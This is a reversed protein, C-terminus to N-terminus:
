PAQVTFATRVEANGLRFTLRCLGSRAGLSRVTLQLTTSQGMGAKVPIRSPSVAFRGTRPTTESIEISSDQLCSYQVQITASKGSPIPDGHQIQLADNLIRSGDDALRFAEAAISRLHSFLSKDLEKLANRPARTRKTPSTPERTAKPTRHKAPM